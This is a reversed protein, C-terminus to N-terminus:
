PKVTGAGFYIGITHEPFSTGSELGPKVGISEFARTVTFYGPPMETWVGVEPKQFEPKSYDVDATSHLVFYLGTQPQGSIVRDMVELPWGTRGFIRIFQTGRACDVEDNPPCMFHIPSRTADSRIVSAFRAQEKENLIGLGSEPWINFGFSVVGITVFLVVTAVSRRKSWGPKSERVNKLHLGPILLLLWLAVLLVITWRITDHKFLLVIALAGALCWLAWDKRPIESDTQHKAM